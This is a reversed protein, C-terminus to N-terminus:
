NLFDNKFRENELRGKEKEIEAGKFGKEMLDLGDIIFGDNCYKIFSKTFKMDFNMHESWDLILSDDIHYNKKLKVLNYVDDSILYEQLFLMEKILKDPFKLEKLKKIKPKIDGFLDLFIIPNKIFEIDINKNIEMEPFMQEWMNYKNLLSIYRIMISKDKQAHEMTKNWEELIREQSVNEKANINRLRNDSLIADHTLKDITSNTRAAFRLIRLIRLRDERFRDAPNGVARIIKNNIDDIGGVLDVIEKKNIDYFLANMSIDRRKVDDAITIHNGIEVKQDDGKTDRGFSIDKRYTALEYGLPEDDTYIRLVGFNKGQEDSVHWDKLIRKSEEPLANTVLDYDHPIKNQLFDRVAGGVVFIDKGAMRFLKAIKLIDNPIPINATMTKELIFENYKKLM